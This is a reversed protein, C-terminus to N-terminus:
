KSETWTSEKSDNISWGSSTLEFALSLADHYYTTSTVCKANLCLDNSGKCDALTDCSDGISTATMSAMLDHIFKATISLLANQSWVSTYQTPQSDFILGNLFPSAFDCSMNVTLCNVLTAAFTCDVTVNENLQSNNGSAYAYLSKSLISALNCIENV